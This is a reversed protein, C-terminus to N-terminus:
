GSGGPALRQVQPYGRRAQQASRPSFRLTPQRFERGTVGNDDTRESGGLQKRPPRLRLLTNVGLRRGGAPNNWRGIAIAASSSVESTGGSPAEKWRRGMRRFSSSRRCARPPLTIRWASRKAMEAGDRNNRRAAAPGRGRRRARIRNRWAVGSRDVIVTDIALRSGSAVLVAAFLAGHVRRSGVSGSRVRRLVPHEATGSAGV